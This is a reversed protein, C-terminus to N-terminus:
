PAGCSVWETLQAREADTPLPEDNSGIPMSRGTGATSSVLRANRRVGEVTHLRVGAQARASTNHCVICHRGMFDSGFNSWTLTTAADNCTTDLGGGCGAASSLPPSGSPL